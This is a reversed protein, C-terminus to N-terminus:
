RQDESSRRCLKTAGVDSSLEVVSLAIQVNNATSDVQSSPHARCFSCLQRIMLLSPEVNNIQLPVQGRKLDILARM